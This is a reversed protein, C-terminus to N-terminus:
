KIEVNGVKQWDASAEMTVGIYVGESKHNFTVNKAMEADIQSPTLQYIAGDSLDVILGIIGGFVINGWVWGNGERKLSIEVDKYGELTLKIKTNKEKRALKTTIPTKGISSDNVYVTAQTPNSTIKFEQKSGKIITACSSLLLSAIVSFLLFKNKM